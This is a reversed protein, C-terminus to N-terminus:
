VGYGWRRLYPELTALADAFHREYHKWRGIPRSSVPEIVQTYSPTSIYGKALANEGPALMSESWPLRLFEALKRVQAPFEAVFSEYQIEYTAAGLLPQQRYWFDFSQRYAKALTALDRCMMALDPARFHQAFCSSLVDCPHRVILVTRAHPFLRRIAPLRLLNLPNKDVLRQGVQLQVKRDVRKWYDARISRLQSPMLKGLEAPYAWGLSKMQDVARQLFPQEDMSVLAPHADLTQELLTTGSRPFGVIFIPSESEPPADPDDWLAIDESVAGQRTLSLTPSEEAPKKGLAADLYAVQSRHAETLAAIAEDYEGLADLSRALPFLLNHRQLFDSQRELARSLLRRAEEDRHDRQALVAEALVFDPDTIDSQVSSKARELTARAEDVRNLREFVNALTLAARGGEPPHALLWDVAPQAPKREGMMILLYAMEAMNAPTLGDFKPWNELTKVADPFNGIDYCCQAFTCQIWADTPALETARKLSAFAAVYDLLGIQILGINYLTRASPVALALSREYAALAEDLRKAERLAVGLNAWHEASKPDKLTLSNFIRIADASRGKAQLVMGLVTWAGPHERDAELARAAKAEAADLENSELDQCALRILTETDHAAM